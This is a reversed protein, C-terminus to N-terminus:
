EEKDELIVGIDHSIVSLLPLGETYVPCFESFANQKGSSM